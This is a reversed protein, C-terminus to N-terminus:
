LRFVLGLTLKSALGSDEVPTEVALDTGDPLTYTVSVQEWNVAELRMSGHLHVTRGLAYCAGLGFSVGAGTAEYTLSEQQSEISFGGLGGFVYPRWAREARFMYVAEFLGGAFVIELGSDSTAHNAGGGYIRLMFNPNLFYGFQLAGGGATEEISVIDEEDNDGVHSSLGDLGLLWRDGAEAITPASLIALLALALITRSVTM